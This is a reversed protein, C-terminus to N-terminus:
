CTGVLALGVFAFVLVFALRAVCALDFALVALMALALAFVGM